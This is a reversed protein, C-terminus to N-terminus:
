TKESPCSFYKIGSISHHIHWSLTGSLVFNFVNKEEETVRFTFIEFEKSFSEFNCFKVRKM